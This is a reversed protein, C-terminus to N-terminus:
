ELEENAAPEWYKQFYHYGRVTSDFEFLKVAM